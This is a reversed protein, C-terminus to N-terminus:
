NEELIKTKYAHARPIDLEFVTVDAGMSPIRWARMDLGAALIVFQKVGREQAKVWQEDFYLTRTVQNIWVETSKALVEWETNFTFGVEGALKEAYIDATGGINSGILPKEQKSDIARHAATLQATPFSAEPDIDKQSTPNEM